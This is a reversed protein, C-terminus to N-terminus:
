NEPCIRCIRCNKEVYEMKDHFNALFNGFEAIRLNFHPVGAEEPNSDWVRTSTAVGGVLHLTWCEVLVLIQPEFGSSAPTEWKFRLNIQPPTHIFRWCFFHGLNAIYSIFESHIIVPAWCPQQILMTFLCQLKKHNLFSIMKTFSLSTRTYCKKSGTGFHSQTFNKM